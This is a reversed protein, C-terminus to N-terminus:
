QLNFQFDWLMFDQVINKTRSMKITTKTNSLCEVQFYHASVVVYLSLFITAVFFLCILVAVIVRVVRMSVLSDFWASIVFLYLSIIIMDILPFLLLLLLGNWNWNARSIEFWRMECNISLSVCVNCVCMFKLKTSIVLM